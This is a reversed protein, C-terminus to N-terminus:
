LDVVQRKTVVPTPVQGRRAVRLRARLVRQRRRRESQKATLHRPRTRLKRPGKNGMPDTPPIVACVIEDPIERCSLARPSAGEVIRNVWEDHPRFREGRLVDAMCDRLLRLFSLVFQPEVRASGTTREILRQM